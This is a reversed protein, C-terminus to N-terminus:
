VEGVYMSIEARRRAILGAIGGATWKRMEDPVACCHGANLKRLLTSTSFQGEGINFVFSTLADFQEQKLPVTVLRNVADAAEQADAFLLQEAETRTMTIGDYNEGPKILHGFGITWNGKVDRYKQARFGERAEVLRVFADSPQVRSDDPTSYRDALPSRALVLLVAM